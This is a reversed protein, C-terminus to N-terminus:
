GFIAVSGETTVGLLEGNVSITGDNNFDFGVEDAGDTTYYIIHASKTDKWIKFIGSGEWSGAGEEVTGRGLDIGVNGDYGDSYMRAKISYNKDDEDKYYVVIGNEEVAAYYDGATDADGDSDYGGVAYLTGGYIEPSRVETSAIHTTKIYKPPSYSADEIDTTIKAQLDSNFDDWTIVGSLILDSATIQSGSITVAEGNQNSVVLGKADMRLTTSLGKEVDVVRGTLADATQTWSSYQAAYVKVADEYEGVQTKYGTVTTQFGDVSQKYDSVSAEYKDVADGYETVAAEYDKIDKEWQEIDSAYEAIDATYGAVTSNFGDVTETWIAVQSEYNKVANEYSNVSATLNGLESAYKAVSADYGQVSTTFGNVTQDFSSVQAEYQETKDKYDNIEATLEALETAYEIVSNDYGQVALTFGDVTQSFSAVQADYRETQSKYGNVEETLSSLEEAYELVSKDYGQVATTFGHVTQNFSSVQADYSVVADEYGNVAETLVGLEQEYGAVASKYEAIVLSFGNVSEEAKIIRNTTETLELYKEKFKGDILMSEGDQTQFDTAKVVGRFEGSDAYVTGNFVGNGNFYVNGKMDIWFNSRPLDNYSILSADTLTEGNKSLVGIIQGDEDRAFLGVLDEVGGVIGVEPNISIVGNTGDALSSVLDFRANHLRAGDGDVTFEAIGDHEKESTVRLYNTLVMEGLLAKTSLGYRWGFEEGTYIYGLATEVTEWNNRTFTILNNSMWVQEPEFSDTSGSVYKRLRIGAGDMQIGQGSTSIIANKAMDFSKTLFDNVKKDTGSDVFANLRGKSSSYSKGLSVSKGLLDVLRFANDLASYEDSFTLSLSSPNDFDIDAGIAIPTLVQDGADVYNRAGLKFQKAFVEFDKAVLFNASDVSFEYKPWAAKELESVAYDYLEWEVTRKAYETLSRTLYVTASESSVSFETGVMYSAGVEEDERLNDVMTANDSLIVLCGSKFEADGYTGSGLEATFIISGDSRKEVVASEAKASVDTEGVTATLTGAVSRYITKGDAVSIQTIESESVKAEVKIGNVGIDSDTYNTLEKYIFTPENFASHRFYKDLLLLEEESFFSKLACTEKTAVQRATLAKIEAEISDILLEKASIESKKAAIKSNWGGSVEGDTNSDIGRATAEVDVSQLEQLKSLEGQLTVLAANEAVLRSEQLVKDITMLYFPEQNAEYTTKWQQWKDIIDQTFYGSNMFYDLNYILNTGMPNVSRIDVDDAGSVDFVTFIEETNEKVKIEKALNHMSILIPRQEVISGADIIDIQRDFTEFDFFCDYLEQLTGKLLDYVNFSGGDFTRYRNMVKADANRLKWSPAVEFVMEMIEALSHTGQEIFLTKYSLEFELSYAKCAKIEVIGDDKTEPDILIFQGVDPWAIVHMGVVDKYHPVLNGDIKKPLSFSLESIENFSLKAKPGVINLLPQIPTGDLNKLIFVPRTSLDLKSFDVVM